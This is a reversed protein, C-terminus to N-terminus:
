AKGAARLVAEAEQEMYSRALRTYGLRAVLALPGSWALSLRVTCRGSEDVSVAHTAVTRVGGVEARWTFSRGPEHDTVVYDATRLRPQEVRFRAGPELGAGDVRVVSDVTPLLDPWSEVDSLARWVAAPDAAGRRVVEIM